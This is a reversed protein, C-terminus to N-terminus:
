SGRKREWFRRKQKKGNWTDTGGTGAKMIERFCIWAARDEKFPDAFFPLRLWSVGELDEPFRPRIDEPMHNFLLLTKGQANFFRAARLTQDTEWCKGGCVLVYVDAGPLDPHEQWSTGVDKVVVPYYCHPMKVSKGYYPRLSLAGMHCIGTSDTKAKRNKALTRVTDTDHEEQYLTRYGNGTLFGTIGLAAHTTGIGRKAGAFVITLSEIADNKLIGAKLECLAQELEGANRYREEKKIAMCGRIIRDMERNEEITINEGDKDPVKGRCM